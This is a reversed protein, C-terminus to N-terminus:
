TQSYFVRNVASKQSIVFYGGDRCLSIGRTRFLIQPVQARLLEFEIRVDTNLNRGISSYEKAIALGM